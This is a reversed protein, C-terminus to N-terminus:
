QYKELDGRDSGQRSASRCDDIKVLIGSRRRKGGLWFEVNLCLCQRLNLFLVRGVTVDEARAASVMDDAECDRSESLPKAALLSMCLIEEFVSQYLGAIVREVIGVSASGNSSCDVPKLPSCSTWCMLALTLIVRGAWSYPFIYYRELFRSFAQDVFGYGHM